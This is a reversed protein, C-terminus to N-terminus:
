SVSIKKESAALETFGLVQSQQKNIHLLAIDEYEYQGSAAAFTMASTTKLEGDSKTSSKPAKASVTTGGFKGNFCNSFFEITQSNTNIIDDIFRSTGTTPDVDDSKLSGTFAEVPEYKIKNGSEADVYGRFVVVGVNKLRDREFSRDAAINVTPFFGMAYKSLTLADKNGEPLDESWAPYVMYDAELSANAGRSFVKDTPEFNSLARENNEILKQYYMANTATTVIPLVGLLYRSSLTMHKADVPIKEYIEQNKDVIIFHNSAPRKVGTRYEEMEEAKCSLNGSVANIEAYNKGALTADASVMIDGVEVLDSVATTVVTPLQKVNGIAYEAYNFNTTSTNNYPLRNAYLVVKDRKIAESCANYFYREAENTPTGFTRILDDDSNKSTFKYPSNTHGQTAFGNIFVNQTEEKPQPFDYFSLDLENLEVGPATITVM